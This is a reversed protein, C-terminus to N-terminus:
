VPGDKMLTGFSSKKKVIKCIFGLLSLSLMFLCLHRQYYKLVSFVKSIKPEPSFDSSLPLYGFHFLQFFGIYVTVSINM